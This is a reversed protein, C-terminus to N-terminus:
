NIEDTKEAEVNIERKGDPRLKITIIPNKIGKEALKTKLEEIIQDNTKGRTDIDLQEKAPSEIEIEGGEGLLIEMIRMTEVAKEDGEPLKVNEIKIRRQGQSDSSVIVRPNKYGLKTLGDELEKKVEEDTKEKLESKSDVKARVQAYISGTSEVIIPTILIETTSRLLSSLAASIDKADKKSQINSVHYNVVNGAVNFSFMAEGHGMATVVDAAVDKDTSDEASIGSIALDYGITKEYSIPVLLVSIFLCIAAAIGFSFKPHKSIEIKMRAMISYERSGSSLEEIKSKIDNFPTPPLSTESRVADFASGLTLKAEFERACSRCKRLHAIIEPDLERADNLRRRVIRCRM